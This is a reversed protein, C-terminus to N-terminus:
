TVERFHIKHGRSPSKQAHSPGSREGPDEGSAPNKKKSDFRGEGRKDAPTVGTPALAKPGLWGQSARGKGM